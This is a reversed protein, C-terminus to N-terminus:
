RIILRTKKNIKRVLFLIDKKNVAICGMTSSYNKKAIHLFIASGKRKVTPKLNYNIVLIVDYINENLWLREASYNFPYKILKNYFKSNIDDCWGMNKKILIKRLKSKLKKVRDKRYLICNLTFTGKPTKKDGEKKRLTIGRKGVACRLKYDNFYLFKNKLKIDM